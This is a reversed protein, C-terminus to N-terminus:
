SGAVPLLGEAHAPSLHCALLKHWCYAATSQQVSVVPPLSSACAPLVSIIDLAHQHSASLWWHRAAPWLCSGAVPLLFDTCAALLHSAVMMHRHCRELQQCMSSVPLLGGTHRSLLGCAASVCGRCTATQWCASTVPLLGGAHQCCVAPRRRMGALPSLTGTHAPM